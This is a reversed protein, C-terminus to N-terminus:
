IWSFTKELLDKVEQQHIKGIGVAATGLVDRGVYELQLNFINIIKNEAINNQRSLKM